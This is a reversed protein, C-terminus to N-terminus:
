NRPIGLIISERKEINFRDSGGGNGLEGADGRGMVIDKGLRGMKEGTKRGQYMGGSGGTRVSRGGRGRRVGATGQDAAENASSTPLLVRARGVSHACGKQLTEGCNKWAGWCKKKTRARFFQKEVGSGRLSRVESLRM